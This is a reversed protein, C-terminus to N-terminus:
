HSEDDANFDVLDRGFSARNLTGAMLVLVLALGSGKYGGIPPRRDCRSCKKM